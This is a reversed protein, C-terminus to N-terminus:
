PALKRSISSTFTFSCWHSKMDQVLVVGTSKKVAEDPATSSFTIVSIMREQNRPNYDQENKSVQYRSLRLKRM